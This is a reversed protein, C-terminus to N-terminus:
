PLLAAPDPQAKCSNICLVLSDREPAKEGECGRGQFEKELEEPWFASNEVQTKLAWLPM